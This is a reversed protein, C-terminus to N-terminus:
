KVRSSVAAVAQLSSRFEIPARALRQYTKRKRHRPFWQTLVTALVEWMAVWATITLGLAFVNHVASSSIDLSRNVWISVFMMAMGVGLFLLIRSFMQRISDREREALYAFFHGVSANIRQQRDADPFQTLTFCLIFDMRGVEEACGILYEVLDEDLDRRIYPAYKDFDNYLDEAKGAAVDIVIRGEADREYRSLLPKKMAQNDILVM